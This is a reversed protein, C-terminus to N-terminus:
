DEEEEQCSLSQSWRSEALNIVHEDILYKCTALPMYNGEKGSDLQLTIGTRALENAERFIVVDQFENSPLRYIGYLYIGQQSRM